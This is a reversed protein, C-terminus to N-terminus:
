LQLECRQTCGQSLNFIKPVIQGGSSPTTSINHEMSGDPSRLTPEPLLPRYRDPTAGPQQVSVSTSVGTPPVQTNNVVGKVAVGECVPCQILSHTHTSTHIHTHAYTHIHTHAYTHIHTHTYTHIHTHTHSHTHPPTVTHAHTHAHKHTYTHTHTRTHTHTHTPVGFLAAHRPVSRCPAACRPVACGPVGCCPM